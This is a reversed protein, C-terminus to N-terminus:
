EQHGPEPKAPQEPELCPAPDPQIGLLEFAREQLPELASLVRVRHEPAAELRLEM